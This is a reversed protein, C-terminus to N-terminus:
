ANQIFAVQSGNPVVGNDAFPSGGGPNIGARAPDGATWGTIPSNGSIYGPFVTFADAEFSPNPITPAATLPSALALMVLLGLTPLTTKMSNPKENRTNM